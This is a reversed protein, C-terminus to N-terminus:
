AGGRPSSAWASAGHVLIADLEADTLEWAPRNDEPPHEARERSRGLRYELWLRIAATKGMVVQNRLRELVAALPLIREMEAEAPDLSLAVPAAPGAPAALPAARLPGGTAAPGPASEALAPEGAPMGDPGAEPVAPSDAPAADPQVVTAYPRAKHEGQAPRTLLTLDFSFQIASM